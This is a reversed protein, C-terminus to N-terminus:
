KNEDEWELIFQDKENFFTKYGYEVFIIVSLSVSGLIGLMIAIQYQTALIPSLGSLIQGTMMGPLFVIGMGLMSNITPLISADFSHDVIDKVADKPKAGLMLAQEIRDKNSNMGETLNNIGLSIGTMSNGILMGAIPIFNKPDYWPKANIVIILFYFLSVLTGISLSIAIVRKLKKSPPRNARKIATYIAFCVMIISILITFLLNVNEFVYILIYGVLTLQITMRLTAIIIEKERGINKKRVIILLIIVFIYSAVVRYLELSIDKNM